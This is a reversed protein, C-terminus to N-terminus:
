LTKKLSSHNLCLFAFVIYLCNIKIFDLRDCIKCITTISASIQKVPGTQAWSTSGKGVGDMPPLTPGVMCSDM